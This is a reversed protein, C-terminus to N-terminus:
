LKALLQSISRDRCEHWVLLFACLRVVLMSKFVPQLQLHYMSVNVDTNNTYEALTMRFSYLCLTCVLPSWMIRRDV